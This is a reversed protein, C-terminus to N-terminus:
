LVVVGGDDSCEVGFWLCPDNASEDWNSLAGYPDAEIRGKFALLAIGTYLNGIM